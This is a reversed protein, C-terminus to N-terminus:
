AQCESELHRPCRRGRGGFAAGRQRKCESGGPLTAAMKRPYSSFTIRSPLRILGSMSNTARMLSNQSEWGKSVQSETYFHAVILLVEQRIGALMLPKRQTHKRKSIVEEAFEWVAACVGAAPVGSGCRTM